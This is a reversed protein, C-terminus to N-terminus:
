DDRALVVRFARYTRPCRIQRKRIREEAALTSEKFSIMNIRKESIKSPSNGVFYM